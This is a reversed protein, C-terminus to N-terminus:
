LYISEHKIEYVNECVHVISDHVVVSQENYPNYYIDNRGGINRDRSSLKATSADNGFITM